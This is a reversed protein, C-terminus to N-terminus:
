RPSYHGPGDVKPMLDAFHLGCSALPMTDELSSSELSPARRRMLQQLWRAQSCLRTGSRRAPHQSSNSAHVSIRLPRDQDTHAVTTVRVHVLLFHECLLGLRCAQTLGWCVDRRCTPKIITRASLPRCLASNCAVCAKPANQYPKPLYRLSLTSSYSSNFDLPVAFLVQPPVTLVACLLVKDADGDCSFRSRPLKFAHEPLAAREKGEGWLKGEM